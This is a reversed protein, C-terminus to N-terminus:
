PQAEHRAHPNAYPNKGCYCETESPAASGLRELHELAGGLSLAGDSNRRWLISYEGCRSCKATVVTADKCVDEDVFTHHANEQQCSTENNM